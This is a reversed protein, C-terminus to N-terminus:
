CLAVAAVVVVFGTAVRSNIKTRDLGVELKLFLFFCVKHVQGTIAFLTM